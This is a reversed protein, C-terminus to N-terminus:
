ALQCLPVMAKLYSISSEYAKREFESKAKGIAVEIMEYYLVMTALIPDGRKVVALNKKANAAAHHESTHKRFTM